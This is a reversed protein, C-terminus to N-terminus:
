HAVCQGCCCFFRERQLVCIQVVLGALTHLLRLHLLSGAAEIVHCVQLGAQQGSNALGGSRDGGATGASATASPIAVLRVLNNDMYTTFRM